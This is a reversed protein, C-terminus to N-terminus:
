PADCVNREGTETLQEVVPVNLGRAELLQRLMIKADRSRTVWEGAAQKTQDILLQDLPGRDCRERLTGIRQAALDMASVYFVLSTRGHRDLMPSGALDSCAKTLPRPGPGHTPLLEALEQLTLENSAVETYANEIQADFLRWNEDSLRDGLIDLKEGLKKIAAVQDERPFAKLAAAEFPALRTRLESNDQRLDAVRRTLHAAYLSSATMAAGLAILV